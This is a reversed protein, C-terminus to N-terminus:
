NSHCLQQMYIDPKITAGKEWSHCKLMEIEVLGDWFCAIALYNLCQTKMEMVWSPNGLTKLPSWFPGISFPNFWVEKKTNRPKFIM